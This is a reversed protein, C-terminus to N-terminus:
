LVRWLELAGLGALSAIVSKYERNTTWRSLRWQGAISRALRRPFFRPTKRAYDQWKPGFSRALAREEDRVKILYIAALPGLVFFVNEPDNVLQCFGLMMVFSGVYLPNRVLAYPGTTTLEFRKTLIGAAWSRLVTGLLVLAVGSASHWDGWAFVSHPKFGMLIDELMLLVFVAVSIPIRRRILFRAAPTLWASPGPHM